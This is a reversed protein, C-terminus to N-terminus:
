RAHAQLLAVSRPAPPAVMEIVDIRDATYFDRIRRALEHGDRLKGAEIQLAATRVFEFLDPLLDELRPIIEDM